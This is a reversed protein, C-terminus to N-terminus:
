FDLGAFLSGIYFNRALVANRLLGRPQSMSMRRAPDIISGYLYPAGTILIGYIRRPRMEGMKGLIYNGICGDLYVDSSFLFILYSSDYRYQTQGSRFSRNRRLSAHLSPGFRARIRYSWSASKRSVDLISRRFYNWRLM